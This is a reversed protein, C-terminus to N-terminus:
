NVHSQYKKAYYNTRAYNWVISISLRLSLRNQGLFIYKSIRSVREEWAKECYFYNSQVSSGEFGHCIDLRCPQLLSNRLSGSIHNKVKILFIRQDYNSFLMSDTHSRTAFGLPLLSCETSTDMGIQSYKYLYFWPKTVGYRPLCSGQYSREEFSTDVMEYDRKADDDLWKQELISLRGIQHQQLQLATSPGANLLIIDM